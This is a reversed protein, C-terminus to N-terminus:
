DEARRWDDLCDHAFAVTSPLASQCLLVLLSLGLIAGLHRNGRPSLKSSM